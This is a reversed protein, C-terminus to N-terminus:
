EMFRGINGLMAPALSEATESKLYFSIIAYLVLHINEM